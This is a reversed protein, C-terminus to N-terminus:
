EKKLKKKQLGGSVAIPKYVLLVAYRPYEEGIEVFLLSYALDLEAWHQDNPM